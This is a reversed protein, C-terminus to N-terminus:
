VPPKAIKGTKLTKTWLEFEVSPPYDLYLQKRTSELFLNEKGVYEAATTISHGVQSAKQFIREMKPRWSEDRLAHHELITLPVVEVIRELNRLGRELQSSEARLGELYFPPGGLMIMTPKANLILQATYTSIPGQVDPAFMFRDNGVGIVVMIVWGLMADESGHAVAESFRLTTQCYTFTKGDASELTKAHKGGTKEFM